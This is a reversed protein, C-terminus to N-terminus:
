LVGTNNSGGVSKSYMRPECYYFSELFSHPLKIYHYVKLFVPEM